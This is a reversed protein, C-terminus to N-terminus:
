RRLYERAVRWHRKEVLDIGTLMIQWFDGQARIMSEAQKLIALIQTDSFRSKKM